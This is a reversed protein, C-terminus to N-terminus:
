KRSLDGKNEYSIHTHMNSLINDPKLIFYKLSVTTCKYGAQFFYIQWFIINLGYSFQSFWM